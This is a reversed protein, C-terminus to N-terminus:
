ISVILGINLRLGRSVERQCDAAGGSGHDREADQRPSRADGGALEDATEAACGASRDPIATRSAAGAPAGCSRGAGEVFVAGPDGGNQSGPAACPLTLNLRVRSFRTSSRAWLGTM